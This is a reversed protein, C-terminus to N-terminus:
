IRASQRSRKGSCTSRRTPAQRRSKLRKAPTTTEASSEVWQLVECDHWRGGKRYGRPESGVREFGLKRAFNMVAPYVVPIQVYAPCGLGVVQAVVERGFRRAWQLRGTAGMYFHISWGDRYPMLVAVGLTEHGSTLGLSVARAPLGECRMREVDQDCMRARVEDRDLFFLAEGPDIARVVSM